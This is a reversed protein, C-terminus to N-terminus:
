RTIRRGMARIGTQIDRVAFKAVADFDSFGLNKVFSAYTTDMELVVTITTGESTMLAQTSKRLNESGKRGPHDQYPDTDQLREAGQQAVELMRSALLAFEREARETARQAGSRRRLKMM